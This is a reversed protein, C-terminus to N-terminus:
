VPSAIIGINSVVSTQLKLLSDEVKNLVNAKVALGFYVMSACVVSSCAVMSENVYGWQVIVYCSLMLSNAVSM